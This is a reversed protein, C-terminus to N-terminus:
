SVGLVDSRRCYLQLHHSQGGANRAYQIVLPGADLVNGYADRVDAIRRTEDLSGSYECFIVCDYDMRDSYQDDRLGGSSMSQAHEQWLCPVGSAETSWSLTPVGYLDTESQVAVQITCTHTLLSTRISRRAV